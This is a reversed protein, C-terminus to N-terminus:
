IEDWATSEYEVDKIALDDLEGGMDNASWVVSFVHQGSFRM